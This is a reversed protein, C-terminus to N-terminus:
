RQIPKIGLMDKLAEQQMKLAEEKRNLIGLTNNVTPSKYKKELKGINKAIGKHIDAFTQMKNNAPLSDSYVFNGKMTENGEVETNSSLQVGGEEHSNGEIAVSDRSMPKLEGGDLYIKHEPVEGGYEAYIQNQNSGTTDYGIYRSAGKANNIRRMKEIARAKERKADDNGLAGSIGGILAGAAGGVLTGVGPIVSGIAAGTGAGSLAGGGIAGADSKVGYNKDDQTTTLNNLADGAFQGLQAYPVSSPKSSKSAISTPPKSNDYEGWYDGEPGLPGGNDYYKRLRKYIM